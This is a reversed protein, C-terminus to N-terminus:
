RARWRISDFALVAFMAALGVLLGSWFLNQQARQVADLSSAELWVPGVSLQSVGAAGGSLPEFEEHAWSTGFEYETATGAIARVDDRVWGGPLAEISIDAYATVVEADESPMVITIEPSRVHLTADSQTLTKGSGDLCVTYRDGTDGLRFFRYGSRAEGWESVDLQELWAEQAPPLGTVHEIVESDDTRRECALLFEVAAEDNVVLYMNETASRDVRPGDVAYTSWSLAGWPGSHNADWGVRVMHRARDEADEPLVPLVIFRGLGTPLSTQAPIGLVMAGALCGAAALLLVTNRVATGSFWRAVARTRTALRGAPTAPEEPPPDAQRSSLDDRESM